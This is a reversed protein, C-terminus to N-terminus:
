EEEQILKYVYIKASKWTAVLLHESQDQEVTAICSASGDVKRTSLKQSGDQSYQAVLAGHRSGVLTSGVVWLVYIFGTKDTCLSLPRDCKEDNPEQFKYLLKGEMSVACAMKGYFDCVLLNDDSFGICRPWGVLDPLTVTNTRHLMSNFVHVDKSNKCGVFIQSRLSDACVCSVVLHDSRSPIIDSISKSLKEFNWFNIIGIEDPECVTAISHDFVSACLCWPHKTPSEFYMEKKVSGSLDVLTIHSHNPKAEGSIVVVDKGWDTKTMDRIHCGQRRLGELEVKEEVESILVRNRRWLIELFPNPLAKLLSDLQPFKKSVDRVLPKIAARIVPICEMATWNHKSAVVRTTTAIFSEFRNATCDFHHSINNIEDLARGEESETSTVWEKFAKDVLSRKGKLRSKEGELKADLSGQKSKYDTDEKEFLQNYKHNLSELEREMGQQLKIMNENHVDEVELKSRQVKGDIGRLKSEIERLEMEYHSRSVKKRESFSKEVKLEVNQVTEKMKHLKGRCEEVTPLEKRLRETELKALDIVDGTNHERHKGQICVVCVPLNDCTICCLQAENQPHTTCRPDKKVSALKEFTTNKSTLDKSSFVHSKHDEFCKRSPHDGYCGICLYDGCKYCYASVKSIKGCVCCECTHGGKISTVLRLHESIYKIQFDNKFGNVGEATLVIEKQCEPCTIKKEKGESAILGVLCDRCYRHLCPLVRPDNYMKNCINCKCVVNTLDDMSVHGSAAMRSLTLKPTPADAFDM